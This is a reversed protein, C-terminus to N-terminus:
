SGEAPRWEFVRIGEPSMVSFFLGDAGGTAWSTSFEGETWPQGDLLVYHDTTAIWHSGDESFVVNRYGNPPQHETFVEGNVVLAYGTGLKQLSGAWGRGSESVFTARLRGDFGQPAVAVGDLLFEGGRLTLAPRRAPERSPQREVTSGDWAFAVEDGDDDVQVTWTGDDRIQGAATPVLFEGLTHRDGKTVVAASCEPGCSERSVVLWNERSPSVDVAVLDQQFPATQGLNVVEWLEPTAHNPLLETGIGGCALVVGALLPGILLRISPGVILDRGGSLRSGGPTDTTRPSLAQM